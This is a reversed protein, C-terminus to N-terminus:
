PEPRNSTRGPIVGLPRDISQEPALDRVVLTLPGPSLRELRAAAWGSPVSIERADPRAQQWGAQNEDVLFAALATSDGEIVWKRNITLRSGDWSLHRVPANRAGIGRVVLSVRARDPATLRMRYHRPGDPQWQIDYLATHAFVEADGEGDSVDSAIPKLDDSNAVLSGNEDRVWVSVTFQDLAPSFSGGPSWFGVDFVRLGPMNFRAFVSPDPWPDGPRQARAAVPDHHYQSNDTLFRTARMWQTGNNIANTVTLLLAVPIVARRLPTLSGLAAMVILAPMFNPSYLFTENGFILHLAVQGLLFAPLFLRLTRQGRVKTLSWVGVIMLGAWLVASVLSLIGASGPWSSQTLMVPWQGAGPRDVIAIAPMVVSHMVFSTVVRVPGLAEPAVIHGTEPPNGLFFMSSPAVKKGVWWLLVTIAFSNLTIQLAQRWPRHLWSALIGAMWNTVTVAFTAVGVAVEVVAPIRRTASAAVVIMAMLITLSGMPHTEPVSFWFMASASTLGLLTFIVADPRRCGMLRLVAFLGSAWVGAMVSIFVRVSTWADLSVTRLVYVFPVAILSFIPHVKSRYNNSWRDSMNEVVRAIDAEFWVDVTDTTLLRADLQGTAFWAIVSVIVFALLGIVLDGRAIRWGVSTTPEPDSGTRRELFSTLAFPLRITLRCPV